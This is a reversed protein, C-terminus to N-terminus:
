LSYVQVSPITLNRGRAFVILKKAEDLSMTCPECDYTGNLILGNGAFWQYGAGVITFWNRPDKLLGEDDVFFTYPKYGVITFLECGITEAIKEIDLDIERVEQKVSDILIARM